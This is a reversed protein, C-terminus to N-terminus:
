PLFTVAESAGATWHHATSTQRPQGDLAFWIPDGVTPACASDRAVDIGWSGDPYTATTSDCLAARAYASVVAGPAATGFLLMTGQGPEPTATPTAPSVPSPPATPSPPPTELLYTNSVWSRTQSAEVYSWGECADDGGRVITVATADPWAGAVRADQACADRLSVGIGGTAGIFRTVGDGPATPSPLGPAGPGATASPAATAEADPEGAELYDCAAFLLLAPILFVGLHRM